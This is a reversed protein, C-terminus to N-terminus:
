TSTLVKADNAHEKAHCDVCLWEVELPKFYDIHHAHLLYSAVPEKCQQCRSPKSIKGASVAEHVMQRAHEKQRETKRVILRLRNAFVKRPRISLHNTLLRAYEQVLFQDLYKWRIQYIDDAKVTEAVARSLKPLQEIM